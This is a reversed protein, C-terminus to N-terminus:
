IKFMSISTLNYFLEYSPAFYINVLCITEKKGCSKAWWLESRTGWIRVRRSRKRSSLAAESVPRMSLLPRQRLISGRAVTAWSSFYRSLITALCHYTHLKNTLAWGQLGCGDWISYFLYEGRRKPLYMNSSNGSKYINSFVFLHTKHRFINTM